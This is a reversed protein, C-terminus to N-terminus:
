SLLQQVMEDIIEMDEISDVKSCLEMMESPDAEGAQLKLELDAIKKALNKREKQKM